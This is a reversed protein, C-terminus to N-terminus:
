FYFTVNKKHNVTYMIIVYLIDYGYTVYLAPAGNGLDASFEPLKRSIGNNRM